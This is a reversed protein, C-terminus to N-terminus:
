GNGRKRDFSIQGYPSGQADILRSGTESSRAPRNDCYPRQSTNRRYWIRDVGPREIVNLIRTRTVPEHRRFFVDAFHETQRCPLVKLTRDTTERDYTRITILRSLIRTSNDSIVQRIDPTRIPLRLADCSIITRRYRGVYYGSFGTCCPVTFTTTGASSRTLWPLVADIFPCAMRCKQYRFWFTQPESFIKGVDKVHAFLWPLNLM